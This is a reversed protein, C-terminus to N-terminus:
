KKEFDEVARNISEHETPYKNGFFLCVLGIALVVLGAGKYISGLPDYLAIGLLSVILGVHMFLNKKYIM